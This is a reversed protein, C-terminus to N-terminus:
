APFPLSSLPNTPHSKSSMRARPLDGMHALISEFLDPFSRNFLRQAATTGDDRRLDFNHIITLVRLTQPSFRRAAHHLRSLYGNRGEVASSTRQYKAAMWQCWDIWDQRQDVPMLQTSPHALLARYARQTIQAYAAKLQPQRTKDTQQHWYVWPLLATLVWNQLELDDTKASLAYTVWQWWAQIGQALSPIQTKFTDIAAQAKSSAYSVALTSLTDLPPHLLASLSHLLQSEGTEPVFPHVTQTIEHLAQRYREQALTLQQQQQQISEMALQLQELPEPAIMKEMQQALKSAQQSLQTQQRAMASGLPQALAQLAHFLDRVSACGLGTLALKILAKAGDSVMYHCHWGGQGWWAQIQELWTSYSRNECEVETFIYGSALELLVLIPLGFFTEDGGVCIGVEESVPRQQAQIEEYRIIAQEIERELQRLASASIGVHREIHVAKFFASLSDAGVGQKIGFYYVVAIVLRKLWERGVKTEWWWSEAYENRRKIAQQHRHVSSQSMGTALAISKITANASNKICEAVKECRERITMTM